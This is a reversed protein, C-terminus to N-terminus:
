APVVKWQQEGGGHCAWHYVNSWNGHIRADLCGGSNENKILWWGDANKSVRWYQNSQPGCNWTMVSAGNHRSWGAVELCQQTDRKRITVLDGIGGVKASTWTRTGAGWSGACDLLLVISGNGAAPANVCLRDAARPRITFTQPFEEALASAPPTAVTVLAASLLAPIWRVRM